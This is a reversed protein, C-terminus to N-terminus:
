GQLIIKKGETFDSDEIDGEKIKFKKAINWATDNQKAYYVRLKYPKNSNATENEEVSSVYKKAVDKYIVVKMEIEAKIDLIGSSLYETKIDINNTKAYVKGNNDTSVKKDFPIKVKQSDCNSNTKYLLDVTLVGSLSLSGNEAGASTIVCSGASDVISEFESIQLQGVADIEINDNYVKEPICIKDHELELDSNLCFTDALLNHGVTDCSYISAVLSADINLEENEATKSINAIIKGLKYNCKINTTELNLSVIESFPITKTNLNITDEKLEALCLELDGKILVKTGAIKEKTNIIKGTAYLVESVGVSPMNERITIKQDMLKNKTKYECRSYSKEYENEVDCTIEQKGESYGKASLSLVARVGLKRSNIVLGDVSYFSVDAEQFVANEPFYLSHNLNQEARLGAIKGDETLYVIDFCLSGDLAVSGAVANASNVSVNPVVKLIRLADPKYDPIVIDIDIPLQEPTTVVKKQLTLEEKKLNIEM